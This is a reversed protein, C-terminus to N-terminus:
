RMVTEVDPKAGSVGMLPNYVRLVYLSNGIRVSVITLNRRGSNSEKVGDVSLHIDSCDRLFDERSGGHSRVVAAHFLKIEKLSTWGDQRLLVMNDNGGLNTYREPITSLNEIYHRTPPDQANDQLLVAFKFTPANKM